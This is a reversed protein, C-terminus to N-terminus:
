NKLKILRIDTMYFTIPDLDGPWMHLFDIDSSVSPIDPRDAPFLPGLPIQIRHWHNDLLPEHDIFSRIFLRQSTPGDLRLELNPEYTPTYLYLELLDWNSLNEPAALALQLGEWYNIAKMAIVNGKEGLPDPVISHKGPGAGPGITAGNELQGDFLWYSAAIQSEEVQPTPTPLPIVPQNTYFARLYM